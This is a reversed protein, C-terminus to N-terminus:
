IRQTSGEPLLAQIVRRKMYWATRLSVECKSASARLTDGETFSDIFANWTEIPMKSSRFISSSAATFSRECEKCRFRQRGQHDKGRKIISQAGCRPCQKPKTTARPGEIVDGVVTKLYTKLLEDKKQIPCHKEMRDEKHFLICKKPLPPSAHNTCAYGAKYLLLLLDLIVVVTQSVFLLFLFLGRLPEQHTM